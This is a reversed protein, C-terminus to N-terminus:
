NSTAGAKSSGDFVYTGTSNKSSNICYCIFGGGISPPPKVIHFNLITETGSVKVSSITM